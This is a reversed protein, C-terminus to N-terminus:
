PNGDKGEKPTEPPNKREHVTVSSGFFKSSRVKLEANEPVDVPSNVMLDDDLVVGEEPRAPARRQVTKKADPQATLDMQVGERGAKVKLRRLRGVYVLAIIVVVLALAIIAVVTVTTDM